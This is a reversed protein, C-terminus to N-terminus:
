LSAKPRGDLKTILKGTNWGEFLKIWTAPVHELETSEVTENQDGITIKGAEFAEVLEKVAGPAKGEALFDLIIFGRIELRMSIIEFYNKLGDRSSSNYASVAGCVAVRGNKAMRTLMLDLIEGGVNDFYVEVYGETAKRLEKKFNEKKYNICVDAGLSEVWQCKEDTGAMGIVRKCGLMKKAIQVVMSGTAGAAGSVVVTDDPGARAIEKIGYYATLGTSGLAGLFHTAALGPVEKIPTCTKADLIAHDAWGTWGTVLTGKPLSSARSDVVQGIGQARMCAGEAVPPMYSRNPNAYKSIWGRMAPDNSLYLTKILVENDALPPLQTTIFKFTSDPGPSLLPAATPKNQLIWQRTSTPKSM